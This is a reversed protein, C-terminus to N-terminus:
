RVFRAGAVMFVQREGAARLLAAEVDGRQSELRIELPFRKLRNM